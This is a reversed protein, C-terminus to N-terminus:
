CQWYSEFNNTSVEHSPNIFHKPQKQEGQFHPPYQSRCYRSESFINLHCHNWGVNLYGAKGSCLDSSTRPAVLKRDKESLLSSIQEFCSITLKMTWVAFMRSRLIVLNCLSLIVINCSSLIFFKSIVHNLAEKGKTQFEASHTVWQTLTVSRCPHLRFLCRLLPRVCERSDVMKIIM